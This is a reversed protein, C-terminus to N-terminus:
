STERGGRKGQAGLGVRCESVLSNKLIYIDM